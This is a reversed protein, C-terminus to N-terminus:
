FFNRRTAVAKDLERTANEIERITEKLVDRIKMNNKDEFLLMEVDDKLTYLRDLKVSSLESAQIENFRKMLAPM